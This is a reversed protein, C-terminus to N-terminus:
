EAWQGQLREGEGKRGWGGGDWMRVSKERGGEKWSEIGRVGRERREEAGEGGEWKYVVCIITNKDYLTFKIYKRIYLITKM